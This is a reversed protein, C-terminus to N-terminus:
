FEMHAGLEPAHILNSCKTHPKTGEGMLVLNEDGPIVVPQELFIAHHRLSKKVLTQDAIFALGLDDVKLVAGRGNLPQFNITAWPLRPEEVPSEVKISPLGDLFFPVQDGLTQVDQDGMAGRCAYEVPDLRLSIRFMYAALLKHFGDLARLRFDVNEAMDVAPVAFGHVHIGREDVGGDASFRIIRGILRPDDFYSCVAMSCTSRYGRVRSSTNGSSEPLVPCGAPEDTRNGRTWPARTRSNGSVRMPGTNPSMRCCEVPMPLLSRRQIKRFDRPNRETILTNLVPSVPPM